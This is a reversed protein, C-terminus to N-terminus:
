NNLFFLTLPLSPLLSPSFFPFSFSCLSLLFLFGLEDKQNALAVMTPTPSKGTEKEFSHLASLAGRHKISKLEEQLIDQTLQGKEIIKQVSEDFTEYLHL